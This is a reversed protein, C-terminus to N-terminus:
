EAVPAYPIRYLATWTSLWAEGRATDLVLNRVMPMLTGFHDVISGDLRQVLVQGTLLSATLLLRREVDIAATRVGPQTPIREVGGTKPDILWIEPRNPLPLLIRELGPVWVVRGDLAPVEIWPTVLGSDPDLVYLRDGFDPALVFRKSTPVWAFDRVTPPRAGDPLHLTAHRLMSLDLPLELLTPVHAMNQTGVTLVFISSREPVHALYVHHLEGAIPPSTAGKSWGGSWDLAEVSQPGALFYTRAGVTESDMTLGNSPGWQPALPWSAPSRFLM